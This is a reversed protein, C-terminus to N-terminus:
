PIEFEDHNRGFIAVKFNKIIEPVSGYKDFLLGISLHFFFAFVMIGFYTIIRYNHYNVWLTDHWNLGSGGPIYEFISINRSARATALTPFILSMGIKTMETVGQQQITFDAFTSGFYLLSGWKAALKPYM